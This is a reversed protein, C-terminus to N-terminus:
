VHIGIEDQSDAKPLGLVVRFSVVLLLVLKDNFRKIGDQFTSGGNVGEKYGIRCDMVDCRALCRLVNFTPHRRPLTGAPMEAVFTGSVKTVQM